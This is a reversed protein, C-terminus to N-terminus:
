GVETSQHFPFNLIIQVWVLFLESSGWLTLVINMDESFKNVKLSVHKGKKKGFLLAANLHVSM